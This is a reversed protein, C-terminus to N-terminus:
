TLETLGLKAILPLLTLPPQINGDDHALASQYRTETIASQIAPAPLVPPRSPTWALSQLRALRPLVKVWTAALYTSARKRGKFHRWYYYQRGKITKREIAGLWTPDISSCPIWDGGVAGLEVNSNPATTNPCSQNPLNGSIEVAGLKSVSNPATGKRIVYHGWTVKGNPHELIPYNGKQMVTRPEIPDVAPCSPLLLAKASVAGLEINSNPATKKCRHKIGDEDLDCGPYTDLNRRTLTFLELQEINKQTNKNSYSQGSERLSM